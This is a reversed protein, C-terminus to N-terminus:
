SSLLVNREEVKFSLILHSSPSGDINQKYRKRDLPSIYVITMTMM